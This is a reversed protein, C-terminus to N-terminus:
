GYAYLYSGTLMIYTIVFGYIHIHVANQGYLCLLLCRDLSRLKKATIHKSAFCCSKDLAAYCKLSIYANIYDIRYDIINQIDLYPCVYVYIGGIANAQRPHPHGQPSQRPRPPPWPASFSGQLGSPRLRCWM